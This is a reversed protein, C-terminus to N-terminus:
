VERYRGLISRCTLMDLSSSETLLEYSYKGLTESQLPGGKDLGKITAAALQCVALTLDAPATEHAATYTVKISGPEDCWTGYLRRLISGNEESEDLRQPAYHEGLVLPDNTFADPGHGYAGAPDYWVDEIATVPRRRLALRESDHGDYYETSEVSELPHHGPVRSRGLYSAVVEDLEDLLVGFFDDRSVDAEPIGLHEKLSAVTCLFAM